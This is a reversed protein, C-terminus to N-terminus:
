RARGRRVLWTGAALLALSAAWGGPGALWGAANELREAGLVAASNYAAHFLMAPFISGTAVTLWGLVLGLLLTPAFRHVSMHILAFYLASLLVARRSTGVRRWLGLAAGRFVLEECIGPSLGILLLLEWRSAGEFILEMGEILRGPTPLLREQIVVLGQFMPVLIGAALLAAGALAAPHARRLSLVERVAGGSWGLRLIGAGLLPLLLWLSAALGGRGGQAQLLQGLYFYALVSGALGLHLARGRGAPTRALVPEPDFGLVADERQLKGEVWRMALLGWGLSAATTLLMLGAPVPGILRDRLALAVNAVPLLATFADLRVDQTATLIAPIFAVFMVPTMLYQAERVTRAKASIGLLVGGIIVALPVVLLLGSGLAGASVVIGGGEESGPMIGQQYCWTMSAVNLIGTVISGGVVVLYKATAIDRRAAPTLYLTELTGREKEGAVLDTSLSSGGIFLSFILIYPILSGARAGGSEEATAIDAEVGIVLEEMGGAGGAERWRLDRRGAALGVFFERLRDAAAQSVEHPGYFVITLTDSELKVWAELDGERLARELSDAPAAGSMTVFSTDAEMAERFAVAEGTLLVRPRARELKEESSRELGSMFSFMAPYILIPFIFSFVIARRDRSIERLEKRVFAGIAGNRRTM